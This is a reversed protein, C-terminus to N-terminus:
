GRRLTFAAGATMAVVFALLVGLELPIDVLSAGTLMIDRLGKIAYTLPLFDSVWQLYGPMQEVPWLVGSLFIQPLLLSPIFQVVQFENRAYTSVFIGLNVAGITIIFQMVFIQWLAGRYQIDLAYITFLLVIIAQVIAFVLFGLLYGLALDWRSVPSAMLRELTGQSRERLFSVGTLLFGFFLAMVALMAPAVWSLVDQGTEAPFSLAILTMVVIPVAFILVFTRRDRVFQRVIRLTIASVRNTSM